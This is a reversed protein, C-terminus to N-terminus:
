HGRLYTSVRTGVAFNGSGNHVTIDTIAATSQWRAAVVNPLLAGITGDTDETVEAKVSKWKGTSAYETITIEASAFLAANATSRTPLVIPLNAGPNTLTVGASNWRRAFYNNGADGNFRIFGNPTANTGRSSIKLIVDAAGQDLTPITILNTAVTLVQDDIMTYDLEPTPIEYAEWLVPGRRLVMGPVQTIIDLSQSIDQVAAMPYLIRGDVMGLSCLRGSMLMTMIDRPLLPTGKVAEAWGIYIQPAFYKTAWQYQRFLENQEKTIDPLRAKRKAPWARNREVGQTVDQM